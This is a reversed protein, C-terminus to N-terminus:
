KIEAIKKFFFEKYSPSTIKEQFKRSKYPNPALLDFFDLVM